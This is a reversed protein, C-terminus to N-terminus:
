WWWWCRSSATILHHHITRGCGLWVWCNRPSQRGIHKYPIPTPPQHSHTPNHTVINRRHRRCKGDGYNSSHQTRNPNPSSPPRIAHGRFTRSFTKVHLVDTSASPWTYFHSTSSMRRWRQWLTTTDVTFSKQGFPSQFPEYRYKGLPKTDFHAQGTWCFFCVCM